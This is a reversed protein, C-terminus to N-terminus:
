KKDKYNIKKLYKQVTNVSTGSRKALERITIKIEFSKMMNLATLIKTEAIKSRKEAAKKSNEKAVKSRQEPTLAMYHGKNFKNKIFKDISNVITNIEKQPLPDQFEFNLIEAKRLLGFDSYSGTKAEDYAWTRLTDFLANNRGTGNAMTKFDYEKKYANGFIDKQVKINKIIKDVAPVPLDYFEKLEIENGTFWTRNNCPNRYVRCLGLANLDGNLLAVLKYQIDKLLKTLKRSNFGSLMFASKFAWHYQFGKDTQIIWTPVPLNYDQYKMTDSCDDIDISLVSFMDDSNYKIWKFEKLAYLREKTHYYDNKCESGFIENPFYKLFLEATRSNNSKKDNKTYLETM